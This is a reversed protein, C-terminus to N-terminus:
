HIVLKKGNYIYIGKPLSNLQNESTITKYPKGSVTFVMDPIVPAYAQTEVDTNIVKERFAERVATYCPKINMFHDLLMNNGRFYTTNTASFGRSDDTGWIIMGKVYPRFRSINALARYEKAQRKLADDTYFNQNKLMFDCETFRMEVGMNKYNYVTEAVQASDMSGSEYHSQLGVGDIPLGRTKKLKKVLNYYAKAKNKNWQEVGYDNIYLKCDPDARHAWVFASDIYDEGIVDYWVSHRLTYGYKNTDIISQDDALAENVVDWEFVQGKWHTVVNEIYEKLIELLEERTWNKDNQLGDISIWGPNSVHWCLTHGRLKMNNEQAYKSFADGATYNFTGRKPEVILPKMEWEAVVTNYSLPLLRAKEKDALTNQTIACGIDKGLLDAWYRIGKTPDDIYSKDPKVYIFSVNDILIDVSAGKFGLIFQNGDAEVSPLEYECQNWLDTKSAIKQGTTSAYIIDKGSILFFKRGSSGNDASTRRCDVSFRNYTKLLKGISSGDPISILPGCTNGNSVIHLVKNTSLVPDVEVTATCAGSSTYGEQNLIKFQTGIEYSEFDEVILRKAADANMGAMLWIATTLITLIIRKM